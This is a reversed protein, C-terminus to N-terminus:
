PHSSNGGNIEAKCDPCTPHKAKALSTVDRECVNGCDCRVTATTNSVSLVELTGFKQGILKSSGKRM